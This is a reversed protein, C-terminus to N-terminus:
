QALIRDQGSTVSPWLLCKHDRLANSSKSGGIFPQNTNHARLCVDVYVFIVQLMKYSLKPQLSTNTVFILKIEAFKNDWKKRSFINTRYDGILKCSFVHIM